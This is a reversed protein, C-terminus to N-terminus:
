RRFGGGKPYYEAIGQILTVVLVLLVAMLVLLVAVLVM